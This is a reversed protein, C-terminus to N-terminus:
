GGNSVMTSIKFFLPINSFNKKLHNQLFFKFLVVNLFILEKFLTEFFSNL